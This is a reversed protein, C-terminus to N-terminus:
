GSAVATSPALPKAVEERKPFEEREIKFRNRIWQGEKAFIQLGGVYDQWLLTFLQLDTHSGLGVFGKKIEEESKPLYYNFVGDAGPYTAKDDWYHEALDLLLALMRVLRLEFGAAQVPCDGRNPDGHNKVYLFGNNVAASRIHSAVTHRESLADSFMPTLDIVPIEEPRCDRLLNPLVDRYVPGLATRLELKTTSM